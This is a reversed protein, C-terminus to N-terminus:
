VSCELVPVHRQRTGQDSTDDGTQCPHDQPAGAGEEPHALVEPDGMVAPVVVVGLLSLDPDQALTADQTVRPDHDRGRTADAGVAPQCKKQFNTSSLLVTRLVIVRELRGQLKAPV